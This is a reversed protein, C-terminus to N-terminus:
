RPLRDSDEALQELYSSMHDLAGASLKSGYWDPMTKDPYGPVVYEGPSVISEVIYERVTKARGTYASDALRKVGNTGLLLPPGVRGTAGIIGPITHCVPCGARAFQEQISEEGTVLPVMKSDLHPLDTVFERNSPSRSSAGHWVSAAAILFVMAAIAAM